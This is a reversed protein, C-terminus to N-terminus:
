ASLLLTPRARLGPCMFIVEKGKRTSSASYRLAYGIRRTEGYLSRIEPVDDYSVLWPVKIQQLVVDAVAAHDGPRYSNMYLDQGKAFYPPDLYMLGRKSALSEGRRAIFTLADLRTVHIRTRHKRIRELREILNIKNFRADLKWQGLQAKGGIVGGTIIGSHNTRNLFFTSFGLDLISASHKREQVERQIHWEDITVKTSRVRAVLEGPHDVASKWFAWVSRDLDNLHVESVCGGFLLSLALSGGGAYPEAYHGGVLGNDRVLASVFRYLRWKAGPYRLPSIAYMSQFLPPYTRIELDLSDRRQRRDPPSEARGSQLV